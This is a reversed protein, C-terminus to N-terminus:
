TAVVLRVLLWVVVAALLACALGLQWVARRLQDLLDEVAALLAGVRALYDETDRDASM